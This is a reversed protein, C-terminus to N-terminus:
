IASVHRPPEKQPCPHPKNAPITLTPHNNVMTMKTPLQGYDIIFNVM